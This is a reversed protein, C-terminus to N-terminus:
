ARFCKDSVGISGACNWAGCGVHIRCSNPVARTRCIPSHFPGGGGAPHMGVYIIVLGGGTPTVIKPVKQPIPCRRRFVEHDPAKTEISLTSLTTPNTALDGTRLSSGSRPFQTTM